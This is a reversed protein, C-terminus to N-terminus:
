LRDFDEQTAMRVNEENNNTMQISNVNQNYREVIIDKMFGIDMEDIEHLTFGMQHM